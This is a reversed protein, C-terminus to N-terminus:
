ANRARHEVSATDVICCTDCLTYISAIHIGREMRSALEYESYRSFANAVERNSAALHLMRQM